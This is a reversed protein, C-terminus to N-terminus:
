ELYRAHTFECLTHGKTDPRGKLVLSGLKTWTAASMPVDNRQLATYYEVGQKDKM